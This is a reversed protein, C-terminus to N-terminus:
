LPKFFQFNRQFSIILLPYVLSILFKGCMGKPVKISIHKTKNEDKKGDVSKLDYKAYCESPSQSATPFEQEPSSAHLIITSAVKQSTKDPPTYKPPPTLTASGM